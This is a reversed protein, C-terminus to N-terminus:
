QYGVSRAGGTADRRQLSPLPAYILHRFWPRGPIGGEELLAREEEMVARNLVRPSIQSSQNEDTSLREIESSVAAAVTKWRDCKM